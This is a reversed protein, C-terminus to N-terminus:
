FDHYQASLISIRTIYLNSLNPIADLKSPEIFNRSMQHTFPLILETSESAFASTIPGNAHVHAITGHQRTLEHVQWVRCVKDSQM